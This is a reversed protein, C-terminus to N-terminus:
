ELISDFRGSSARTWSIVHEAYLNCWLSKQLPSTLFTTNWKITSCLKNGSSFLQSLQSQSQPKLVIWGKFISHAIKLNVFEVQNPDSSTWVPRCDIPRHTFCMYAARFLVRKSNTTKEAKNAFLVRTEQTNIPISNSKCFGNVRICVTCSQMSMLMRLLTCVSRFTIYVRIHQSQITSCLLRNECHNEDNHVLSM